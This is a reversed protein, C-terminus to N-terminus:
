FFRWGARNLRFGRGAVRNRCVMGITRSTCSYRGRRLTDGYALRLRGFYPNGICELRAGRRDVVTASAGSGCDFAGAPPATRLTRANYCSAGTRTLSCTIKGSPSKFEVASAPAPAAALICVAVVPVFSRTV